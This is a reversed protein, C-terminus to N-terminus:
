RHAVHHEHMFQVGQSQCPPNRNHSLIRTRVEVFFSPLKGLLELSLDNYRRLFPLVVLQMDSDRLDQLVDLIPCCHNRPDDYSPSSSLYRGIEVEHSQVSKRIQQIVVVREDKTRM